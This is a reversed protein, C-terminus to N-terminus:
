RADDIEGCPGDCTHTVVGTQLFGHLQAQGALDRRPTEHPDTADDPPTNSEPEHLGYDFEVLASGHHGSPVTELGWVPRAPDEILAAGYARAMVHAGLTTVQADGIAVQLLVSKAPTDPLPTHNMAWSYGSGEGSDWLTQNLALILQVHAPDPFMTKFIVFFPSFDASRNLLLHYPMGGVGLVAREIDPSLAAYAGGLIAGQSNGYYYRRSTDILPITAEDDEPDTALFLPDEAMAGMMMRMACFFEVFGQHSREPIISFQEISTVLMLTIPAVDEEKMGTWDVAFVIYGYTNAFEGLYGANVESQSGLLGHGYQILPLPRPDDIATQPVIITFRVTTEGNAYPMGDADRTLLTGPADQETYLPVTMRGHVRMAVSESVSEEVEDIVYDPGAAGVRDLADDRMWLARESISEQSGIVFDWALQLESQEFGTAELAPFLTDTYWERRSEIRPDQTTTGDRLATFGESPVVAGDATKLGRIGVGYRHGHKMPVVPHLLLLTRDPESSTADLEVFHPVREGTSLDVIVTTVDADTHTELETHRIFGKDLVGPFHVLLPTLPSWGDRENLLTPAPQVGDINAPYTHPGFAIRWGTRTTDDEAMYFTSPFPLGCLSPAIPDCDWDVEVAPDDATKQKSTPDTQCAALTLLSLWIRM